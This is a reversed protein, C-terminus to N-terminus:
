VVNSIGNEIFYNNIEPFLSRWNTGRRQDFQDLASHLKVLREPSPKSKIIYDAIGIMRDKARRQQDTQDPVVALIQALTDKFFEGGFITPDLIDQYPGDVYHFTQNIRHGQAMYGNLIEQMKPMTGISLATIAHGATIYLWKHQLIYEFNRQWKELDLGYRVFEQQPGWCDISATFDFRKIRRDVLMRRIRPIFKEFVETDANLNSNVTLELEPNDLTEIYDMMEFFERQLFPEGGQVSLRVLKSSNKGLWTLLHDFYSRHDTHRTLNVVQTGPLPGYRNLEDNIKSSFHPLCYVCALDCTNNLYIELVRPTVSLTGADADFDVPTLGPINNHYQRDSVGGAIEVERCYECGRGVPWQNDLMLKRDNLVEQTNHFNDMQDLPVFVPEVRHCSSSKGNYLRFTNWGWKFVCAADNRIPFVKSM